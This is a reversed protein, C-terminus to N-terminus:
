NSDKKVNEYKKSKKCKKCIGDHRIYNLRFFKNEDLKSKCVRCTITVKM